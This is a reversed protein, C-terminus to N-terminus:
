ASIYSSIIEIRLSEFRGSFLDKKLYITQYIFNFINEPFSWKTILNNALVFMGSPMLYIIASLSSSTQGMAKRLKDSKDGDWWPLHDSINFRTGTRNSTEERYFYFPEVWNTGCAEKLAFWDQDLQDFKRLLFKGTSMLVDALNYPLIM